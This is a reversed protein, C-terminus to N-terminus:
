VGEKNGTENNNDSGESHSSESSSSSSEVSTSSSESSSSEVSTSSSESSSSEVSTSSSESSSSSSSSSPKNDTTTAPQHGKVYLVNGIRVVTSPKTWDSNTVNTSLYSMMNRYILQAITQDAVGQQASKDYGTWVAISYHKTYGAFWSDKVTNNLAPNKALEEDTYGTTGTKGAQYLGSIQTATGSGSTIVDKLMDTIMYATSSKMATQGENDDYHHVVKDATTISAVYQPQYYTGGNAFANYAAAVQLTSINDGIGVSLGADSAIKIGLNSVFSSAKSLGVTELTRVAPINRSVALAQRMTMEGQYQLDWDKLQINTGPYTYESDDVTHNTAWNLYEIAPAYDLLPKMTSGNSRDTQTAHNLAMQVQGVKRNGVMAIVNGNNPDTITVGTQLSNDPFAITDGNVLDYLHQQADWNLNTKITLNDRYPDYGLKKVQKVVEQIYADAIVANNESATVESQSKLGTTIPTNIATQAQASTIKKNDLMAQIVLDRRAKAADPHVYPDYSSPANPIGALLATQALSLQSLSKGYYLTAATGMGYAGNSMFVKNIYYELIQEKSYKQQAQMALWAEQAKRRLTQDSKNTSFYSLKILQQTLTSGGQPASNPNTINHLASSVIRIPDIGLPESYFRRDEISVVADKLQQPIESSKVYSRNESGLRTIQHNNSALVVSSGGKTLEETSLKPADKAYYFFLGAGLLIGALILLLAWRIIRRWLPRKRKPQGGRGTKSRTQNQSAKRAERTMTNNQAM